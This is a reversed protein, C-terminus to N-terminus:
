VINCLGSPVVGGGASTKGVLYRVRGRRSNCYYLCPFRPSCPAVCRLLRPRLFRAFCNRVVVCGLVVSFCGAGLITRALKFLLGVSFVVLFFRRPGHWSFWSVGVALPAAFWDLFVLWGLWFFTRFCVFNRAKRQFTAL